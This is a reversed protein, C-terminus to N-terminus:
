FERVGVSAAMTKGGHLNMVNSQTLNNPVDAVIHKIYNLITEKTPTTIM